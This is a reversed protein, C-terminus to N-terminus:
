AEGYRLWVAARQPDDFLSIQIGSGRGIMAGHEVQPILRADRVVFAVRVGPPFRRLVAADPREFDAKSLTKEGHMRDVVLLRNVNSREVEALMRSWSAIAGELTGGIGRIEVQLWDRQATISVQVPVDIDLM